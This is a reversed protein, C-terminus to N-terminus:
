GLPHPGRLRWHCGGSDGYCHEEKSFVLKCCCDLGAFPVDHELRYVPLCFHCLLEVPFQDPEDVHMRHWGLSGRNPDAEETWIQRHSFWSRSCRYRERFKQLILSLLYGCLEM